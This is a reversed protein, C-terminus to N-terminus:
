PQVLGDLTAPVLFAMQANLTPLTVISAVFQYTVENQMVLFSSIPGGKSGGM